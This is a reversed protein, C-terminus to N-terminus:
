LWRSVDVPQLEVLADWDNKPIEESRIYLQWGIKRYTAAIEAVENNFHNSLFQAHVATVWRRKFLMRKFFVAFNSCKLFIRLCELVRDLWVLQTREM